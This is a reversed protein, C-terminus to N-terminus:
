GGLSRLAATLQAVQSQLVRYAALQAQWVKQMERFGDIARNYHEAYEGCLKRLDTCQQDFAFLSGSLSNLGPLSLELSVIRKNLNELGDDISTRQAQATASDAKLSAELRTLRVEFESVSKLLEAELPSFPQPDQPTSNM